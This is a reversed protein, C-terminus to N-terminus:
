LFMKGLNDGWISNFLVPKIANELIALALAFDAPTKCLNLAKLWNARTNSEWTTHMFINAVASELATM